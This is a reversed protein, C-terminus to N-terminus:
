CTIELMTVLAFPVLVTVNWHLERYLWREQPNCRHPKSPILTHAAQKAREVAQALYIGICDVPGGLVALGNRNEM